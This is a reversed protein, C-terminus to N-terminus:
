GDLGGTGSTRIARSMALAIVVVGLLSLGNFGGILLAPVLLAGAVLTLAWALRM